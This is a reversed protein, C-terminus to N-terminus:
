WRVAQGSDIQEFKGLWFEAELVSQDSASVVPLFVGPLRKARCRAVVM